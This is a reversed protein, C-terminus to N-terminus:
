LILQGYKGIKAQEVPAIIFLVKRIRFFHSSKSLLNYPRIYPRIGYKGYFNDLYSPLARIVSYTEPFSSM